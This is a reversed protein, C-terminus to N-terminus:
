LTGARGPMEPLPFPPAPNHRTFFAGGGGKANTPPLIEHMQLSSILRHGKSGREAGVEEWNAPAGLAGWTFNEGAKREARGASTHQWEKWAVEYLAVLNNLSVSLSRCPINYSTNCWAGLVISLVVCMCRPLPPQPPMQCPPVPALPSRPAPKGQPLPPPRVGPLLAWPPPLAEGGKFM